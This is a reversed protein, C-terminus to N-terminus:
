RTAVRELYEQWQKAVKTEDLRSRIAAAHQGLWAAYSEDDALKTLAELLADEDGVPILLGNEGSTLLSRVGGIPCDTAICALGCAMAEILVNPMGEYDSSLVFLGSDNIDNLLTKSQGALEVAGAIGLSSALKQLKEKEPGEGYLILSYDHHTKYFRAFARILLDFNKQEHLRGAAVVNRKREGAHPAPIRTTDLPNDLVVGRKQIARSFYKSADKTQFIFGRAFPYVLRRLIRKVRSEPHRHPDNRESVVVPVGTGLLYLVTWVNVKEPMALVVDPREQKVLKRLKRYAKPIKRAPLNQDFTLYIQEVSEPLDYFSPVGCETVLKCEIGDRAFCNLLQAIVRECGGGSMKHTVIMLKKM